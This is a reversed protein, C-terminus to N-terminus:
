GSEPAVAGAVVFPGSRALLRGDHDAAAYERDLLEPRKREEVAGLDDVAHPVDVFHVAGVDDLVHEAAL